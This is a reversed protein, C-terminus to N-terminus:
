KGGEECRMAFSVFLVQESHAGVSKKRSRPLSFVSHPSSSCALLVLIFLSLSLFLQNHTHIISRFVFFLTGGGRGTVRSTVRGKGQGRGLTNESRGKNTKNRDSQGEQEGKRRSRAHCSRCSVSGHTHLKNRCHLPLPSVRMTEKKKQRFSYFFCVGCCNVIAQKHTAVCLFLLVSFFIDSSFRVAFFFRLPKRVGRVERSIGHRAYDRLKNVEIWVEANLVDEYEEVTISM